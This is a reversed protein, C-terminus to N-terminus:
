KAFSQPFYKKIHETNFIKFFSLNAMGGIAIAAVAAIIVGMNPAGGLTITPRKMKKAKPIGLLNIRIM